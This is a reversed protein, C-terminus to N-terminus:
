FCLFSWLGAQLVRKVPMCAVELIKKINPPLVLLILDTFCKQEHSQAATKGITKLNSLVDVTDLLAIMRM